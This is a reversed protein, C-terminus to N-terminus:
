RKASIPARRAPSASAPCSSAATRLSSTSCADRLATSARSRSFPASRCATRHRHPLLHRPRLRNRFLLRLVFGRHQQHPHVVSLVASPTVNLLGDTWLEGREVTAILQPSAFMAILDPYSYILWAGTVASVIFLLTVALLHVSMASMAAPVRDRMLSLLVLRLADRPGTSPTTCIRISPRSINRRRQPQQLAHWAHAASKTRPADITTSWPSRM